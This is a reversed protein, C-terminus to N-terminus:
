HNNTLFKIIIWLSFCLWILIMTIDMKKIWIQPLISITTNNKKYWNYIKQFTPISKKMESLYKKANNINKTLDSENTNQNSSSIIQTSNNITWSWSYAFTFSFNIVFIYLISILTFVKMNINKTLILNVLNVM